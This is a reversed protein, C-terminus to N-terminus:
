TNKIRHIVNTWRDYEQGSIEMVNTVAYRITGSYAMVMMFFVKGVKDEYIEFQVPQNDKQPADLLFNFDHNDFADIVQSCTVESTDFKKLACNCLSGGSELSYYEYGDVWAKMASLLAGVVAAARVVWKPSIPILNPQFIFFICFLTLAGYFLLKFFNIRKGFRQPQTGFWRYINGAKAVTEDVSQHEM